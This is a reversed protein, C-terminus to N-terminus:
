ADNKIIHKLIVSHMLPDQRKQNKQIGFYSSEELGRFDDIIEDNNDSFKDNM